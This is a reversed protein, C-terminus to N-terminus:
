DGQGSFMYETNINKLIEVAMVGLWFPVELGSAEEFLDIYFFSEMIGIGAVKQKHHWSITRQIVEDRLAFFM